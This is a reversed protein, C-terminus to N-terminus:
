LQSALLVEGDFTGRAAGLAELSDIGPMIHTLVLRGVGAAAV